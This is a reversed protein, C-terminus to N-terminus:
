LYGFFHDGPMSLNVFDNAVFNIFFSNLISYSLYWLNNIHIYMYSLLLGNKSTCCATYARIYEFGVVLM